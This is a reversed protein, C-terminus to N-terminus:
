NKLMNFVYVMYVKFLNFRPHGQMPACVVCIVGDFCTRNKAAKFCHGRYSWVHSFRSFWPTQLLVVEKASRHVGQAALATPELWPNMRVRLWHHNARDPRGWGIDLWIPGFARYM